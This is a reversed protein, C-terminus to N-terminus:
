KFRICVYRIISYRFNRLLCIVIELIKYNKFLHIKKIAFKLKLSNYEIAKTRSNNTVILLNQIKLRISYVSYYLVYINIFSILAGLQIAYIITRNTYKLDKNKPINENKGEHKTHLNHSV